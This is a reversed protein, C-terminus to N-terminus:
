GVIRKERAICKAEARARQQDEERERQRRRAVLEAAEADDSRVWEEELDRALDRDRLIQAKKRQFVWRRAPEQVAEEAASGEARAREEDKGRGRQHIWAALAAAEANESRM